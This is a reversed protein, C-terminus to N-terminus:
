GADVQDILLYKIDNFVDTQSGTDRHFASIFLQRDISNVAETVGERGMAGFGSDGTGDTCRNQPGIGVDNPGVVRMDSFLCLLFCNKGQAALM